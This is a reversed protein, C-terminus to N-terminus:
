PYFRIRIGISNQLPYFGNVPTTDLRHQSHHQYYLDIRDSGDIVPKVGLEYWWGVWAVQHTSYFHAKNDWYFWGKGLKVNLALENEVKQDPMEVLRSGPLLQRYELDMYKLLPAAQAHTAFFFLILVWLFRM